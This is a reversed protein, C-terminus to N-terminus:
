PSPKSTQAKDWWNVSTGVVEGSRVVWGGRAGVSPLTQPARDQRRQKLTKPSNFSLWLLARPQKGLKERAVWKIGVHPARAAMIQACQTLAQVPDRFSGPSLVAYTATDNKAKEESDTSDTRIQPTPKSSREAQNRTSSKDERSENPSRVITWTAGRSLSSSRRAAEELLPLASEHWQTEPSLEHSAVVRSSLRVPAGKQPVVVFRGEGLPVAETAHLSVFRTPWLWSILRQWGASRARCTMELTDLSGSPTWTVPFGQGKADSYRWSVDWKTAGVPSVVFPQGARLVLTSGSQLTAEGLKQSSPWVVRLSPAQPSRWRTVVVVLVLFLLAGTVCLKQIRQRRARSEERRRQTVRVDGGAPLDDPYKNRSLM